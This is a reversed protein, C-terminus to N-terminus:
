GHSLEVNSVHWSERPPTMCMGTESSARTTTRDSQNEPRSYAEDTDVDFTWEGDAEKYTEEGNAERVTEIVAPVISVQDNLGRNPVDDDTSEPENDFKWDASTAFRQNPQVRKPPM